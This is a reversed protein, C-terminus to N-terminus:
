VPNCSVTMEQADEYTKASLPMFMSEQMSINSEPYEKETHRGGMACNRFQWPATVRSGDKLSVQQMRTSLMTKKVQAVRAPWAEGSAAIAAARAAAEAATKERSRFERLQRPRGAPPGASRRLRPWSSDASTSRSTTESWCDWPLSCRRLPYASWPWTVAGYRRPRRCPWTTRADPAFNGNEKRVGYFKGWPIGILMQAYLGFKNGSRLAADAKEQSDKNLATLKAATLFHGM